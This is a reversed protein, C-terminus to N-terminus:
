DIEYTVHVVTIIDKELSTKDNNGEWSTATSNAPNINIVGMHTSVIPGLSAHGASALIREARERADSSAEALMDVKLDGLGTYHYLPPDSEIPIDRDLLATVERSVQEVKQVDKSTVTITQTARFGALREHSVVDNGVQEYETEYVASIETSSVRIEGPEIGQEQLHAVTKAVDARVERYADARTAARHRITSDWEILDSTIRRTASGTVRITDPEVKVAYWAAAAISVAFVLAVPMLVRPLWVALPWEAVIPSPKRNKDTM